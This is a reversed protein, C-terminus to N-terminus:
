GNWWPSPHAASTPAVYHSQYPHQPLNFDAKAYLPNLIGSPLRQKPPANTMQGTTPSTNSGVSTPPTSMHADQQGAFDYSQHLQVSHRAQQLQQQLSQQQQQPQHSQFQHQQARLAPTSGVSVSGSGARRASPTKRTSTSAAASSSATNTATATTTSSSGVGGGITARIAPSQRKRAQSAYAHGNGLGDADDGSSSAGRKSARRKAGIRPQCQSQSQSQTQRHTHTHTPLQPQSQPQLQHQHQQLQQQAQQYSAAGLWPSTIPSLEFNLDDPSLLPAHTSFALHAPASSPAQPLSHPNNNSGFQATTASASSVSPGAGPQALYNQLTM